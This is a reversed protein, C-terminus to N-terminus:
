KAFLRIGLIIGGLIAVALGVIANMEVLVVAVLSALAWFLLHRIAYPMKDIMQRRNDTTQQRYDTM